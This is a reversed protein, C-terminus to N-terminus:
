LMSKKQQEQVGFSHCTFLNYSNLMRKCIMRSFGKPTSKKPVFVASSIFSIEVFHCGSKIGSADKFGHSM